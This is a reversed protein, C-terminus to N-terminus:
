ETATPQLNVKQGPQHVVIRVKPQLDATLRIPVFYEGLERLPSTMVSRRDVNEGIKEALANVIMQHTISGFLKGKESALMAFTLVVSQLKEALSAKELNEQARQNAAVTRLHEVQKIAGATALVALQRPLLFNRAYGDAVKRVDGAQGLKYVDKLLLVKM